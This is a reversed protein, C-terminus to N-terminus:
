VHPRASLSESVLHDDLKFMISDGDDGTQVTESGMTANTFHDFVAASSKSILQNSCKTAPVQTKTTYNLYVGAVNSVVLDNDGDVEMVYVTANSVVINDQLWAPPPPPRHPTSPTFHPRQYNGRSHYNLYNRNQYNHHHRSHYNHYDRNHYNHYHPPGQESQLVSIDSMVQAVGIRRGNQLDIAVNAKVGATGGFSIQLEKSIHSGQLPLM